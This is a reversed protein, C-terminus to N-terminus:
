VVSKRDPGLGTKRFVAEAMKDIDKDTVALIIADAIQISILPGSISSVM